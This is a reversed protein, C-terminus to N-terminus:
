DVKRRLGYSPRRKAHPVAIVTFQDDIREYVVSYPFRKLRHSRVDRKMRATGLRAFRFPDREIERMAWVLEDLFEDGLGERQKNYWNVAAHLDAEAAVALRLKV